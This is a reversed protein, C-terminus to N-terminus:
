WITWGGDIIINTGNIFKSAESALLLITGKLDDPCGIRNMPVKKELAKVFKKDKQVTKSPFPGPSVSNCRINYKGYVSAMYKTFQIIGAKGVGYNIPNYFNNGEYISVDPAVIGYMSAINIISGSKQEIMKNIIKRTCMFVSNVSGNIGNEWEEYSMKHMENTSGFYSNNILVDIKKYKDIVKDICIDVSEESSIDIYISDNINNYKDTLQKCLERNKKENRSAIIVTSGYEALAESMAKGLHGAGGTIVVVKEKMNFM